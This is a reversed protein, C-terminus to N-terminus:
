HAVHALPSPACWGVLPQRVGGLGGALHSFSLPSDAEGKREEGREEKERGAFITLPPPSNSYGGM